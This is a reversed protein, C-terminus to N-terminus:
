GLGLRLWVLCCATYYSASLLIYYVCGTFDTRSLTMEGNESRETTTTVTGIGALRLCNKHNINEHKLDRLTKSSNQKRTTVETELEVAYLTLM